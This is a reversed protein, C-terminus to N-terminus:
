KIRKSVSAHFNFRTKGWKVPKKEHTIIRMGANRLHEEDIASTRSFLTHIAYGEPKLAKGINRCMKEVNPQRGLIVEVPVKHENMQHLIADGHEPDMAHTSAFFGPEFFDHSVVLDYENEDKIHELNEKRM